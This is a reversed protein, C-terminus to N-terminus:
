ESQLHKKLLASWNIATQRTGLEVAVRCPLVILMGDRQTLPEEVCQLGNCMLCGTLM